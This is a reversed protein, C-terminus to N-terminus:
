VRVDVVTTRFRAQYLRDPVRPASTAAVTEVPDDGADLLARVAEIRLSEQYRGPTMGRERHFRASLHRTSLHRTSLGVTQAITDLSHGPQDQEM